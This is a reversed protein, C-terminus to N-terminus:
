CNYAAEQPGGGEASIAVATSGPEADEVQPAPAGNADNADASPAGLEADTSNFNVPFSMM